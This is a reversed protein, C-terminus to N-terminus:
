KVGVQVQVINNPSEGAEWYLYLEREEDTPTLGKARLSRYLEQWADGIRRGPGVYLISACKFEPLERVKFDGFAKTGEPVFFGTEMKFAKDPTRHPAGYYFHLVPGRLGLKKERAGDGLATLTKVVPEVMSKFNTEFGGSVYQKPPITQLMMEGIKPVPNKEQGSLEGQCLSIGGLLTALVIGVLRTRATM